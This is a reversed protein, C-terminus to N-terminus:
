YEKLGKIEGHIEMLERKGEKVKQANNTFSKQHRNYVYLPIAVHFGCYKQLLRVMLDHEPFILNKKWFGIEDLVKKNFLIGAALTNFVNECSVIKSFGTRLDVEEYDCYAFGVDKNSQLGDLLCQLFDVRIEDDGDVFVVLNGSSYNLATYAAQVMGENEQHIIRLKEDKFSDLIEKTGDVSGDNIVIIEYNNCTQHIASEVSRRIFDADNYTRIILSIM